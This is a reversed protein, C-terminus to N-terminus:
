LTSRTKINRDMMQQNTMDSAVVYTKIPAQQFNLSNQLQSLAQDQSFSGVALGGDAFRKGGGIANISSLLPRFMSTSQANIVSEGNSLMAPILDSKPGGIGQVLGGTAMGRPRPVATGLSAGTGGGGGSASPVPTKIIDAVAKFGVLGTAVAQAIAWGPIPPSGPKSYQALSGAIAAYTNILSAAVALAKGAVTNKGIIDGVANIAAAVAMLLKQQADFKKQEITIQAEANAKANATQDDQIKKRQEATLNEQALLKEYYIKDQELKQDLIQQQLAFDEGAAAMKNAFEQDKAKKGEEATKVFTDVDSKLRKQNEAEKTTTLNQEDIAIQALRNKDADTLQKKGEILKKEDELAKQQATFIDDQAKRAEASNEGYIVKAQELDAKRQNAILNNSDQLKKAKEDYLKQDEELEKDRFTKNIKAVQENYSKTIAATDIGYKKAKAMLDDYTTKADALEEKQTKGRAEVGKAIYANIEDVIKKRKEAETETAKTREEANKKETATLENSGAEYRKMSSKFSDVAVNWGNTLTEYGDTIAEFDLTFVGKLIKGIGVATNKLFSFLAVLGSYFMGIGETIYPLATMALEIFADLLPELARFIGGLIKEMGIWLPELKKMAVESKSFAAVLGGIAAVLLGIVSAKLINNFSSFTIEAQRIGKGLMGLPGSAGELKGLFDDAGSKSNEIEDGFDRIAAAANNWDKSGAITERQLKKLEKLGAISPGADLVAKIKVDVTQTQAM